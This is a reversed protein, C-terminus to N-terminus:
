LQKPLGVKVINPLFHFRCSNLLQSPVPSVNTLRSSLCLFVVFLKSPSIQYKM